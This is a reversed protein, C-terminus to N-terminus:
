SIRKIWLNGQKCVKTKFKKNQESQVKGLTMRYAAVTKGRLDVQTSEGVSIESIDSRVFDSYYGGSAFEFGSIDDFPNM